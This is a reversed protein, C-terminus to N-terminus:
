LGGVLGELIAELNRPIDRRLSHKWGIVESFPSLQPDSTHIYMPYASGNVTLLSTGNRDVLNRVQQGIELPEKTILAMGGSQPIVMGKLGSEVLRFESGFDDAFLGWRDFTFEFRFVLDIRM